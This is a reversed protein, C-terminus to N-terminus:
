KGLLYSFYKNILECIYYELVMIVAFYAFAPYGQIYPEHFVAKHFMEFLVVVISYHTVMLVLSNIGWYNFYDTLKLDQVAMTLMLIGIPGIIPAALGWLMPVPWYNACWYGLATLVIGIVLYQWKAMRVMRLAVLIRRFLFGAAISTWASLMNSLTHFPAEIIRTLSDTKGGFAKYYAYQAVLTLAVALLGIAVSRYRRVINWIMEGGFLAPLFWLTGIGRLVLAKYAERGIMYADYYGASWLLLDFALIVGTWWLYPIGLQKWRKSCLEKLKLPETRYGDLWGTTIFFLSIMFSGIFTNLGNPIVGNEVHLLVICLIAVGKAIDLFRERKKM